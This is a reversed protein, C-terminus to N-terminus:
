RKVYRCGRDERLRGCGGGLKAGLMYHRCRKRDKSTKAICRGTAKEIRFPKYLRGGFYIAAFAGMGILVPMLIRGSIRLVSNLVWWLLFLALIPGLRAAIAFVWPPLLPEEDKMQSM